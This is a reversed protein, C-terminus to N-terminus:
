NLIYKSIYNTLREYLEKENERLNRENNIVVNTHIEEFDDVYKGYIFSFENSFFCSWREVYDDKVVEIYLQDNIIVFTIKEEENEVELKYNGDEEIGKEQMSLKIKSYINPIALKSHEEKAMNNKRHYYLLNNSFDKEVKLKIVETNDEYEIELYLDNKVYKLDKETFVNDYGYYSTILIDTKNDAYLVVEQEKDNLFYLKVSTIEKKEEKNEIEGIQIYTKQKTTIMIGNKSLFNKSIGNIRYVKISNYSNFFYYGLFLILLFAIISISIITVKKLLASKSNYGDVLNLTASTEQNREGNIIEDISVDFIESLIILTQSDPLSKGQEWRSVAQRTIPIMDALKNQSLGKENRLNRIFAGTKNLDM